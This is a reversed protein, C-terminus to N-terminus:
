RGRKERVPRFVNIGMKYESNAPVPLTGRTSAVVRSKGSKSLGFDQELDITLYMKSGEVEVKVNDGVYNARAERRVEQYDESM